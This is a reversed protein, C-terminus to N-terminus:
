GGSPGQSDAQGLETFGSSALAAAVAPDSTRVQISRAGMRTAWWAADVWIAPSGGGLTVWEGEFRAAVGDFDAAAGWAPVAAPPTRDALLASIRAVWPVGAVGARAALDDLLSRPTAVPNRGLAVAVRRAAGVDSRAVAHETGRRDVVAVAAETLRTVFGMVERKGAEDAVLLSVREGVRLPLTLTAILDPATDNM